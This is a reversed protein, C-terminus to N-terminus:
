RHFAFPCHELPSLHLKQYSPFSCAFGVTFVAGDELGGVGLPLLADLFLFKLPLLGDPSVLRCGHLSKKCPVQVLDGQSSQCGGSHWNQLVSIPIYIRRYTSTEASSPQPVVLSFVFSFPSLLATAVAFSTRCNPQTNCSVSRCFDEIIKRFPVFTKPGIRRTRNM